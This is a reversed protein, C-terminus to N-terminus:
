HFRCSHAVLFGLTMVLASCPEPSFEHNYCLLLVRQKKQVPHALFIKQVFTVHRM